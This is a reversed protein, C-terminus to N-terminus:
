ILFLMNKSRTVRAIRQRKQPRTNTLESATHRQELTTKGQREAVHDKEKSNRCMHKFHVAPNALRPASLTITPTSKKELDAKLNNVCEALKIIVDKQKVIFAQQQETQVSKQNIEISQQDATAATLSIHSM